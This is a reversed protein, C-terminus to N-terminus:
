NVVQIVSAASSDSAFGYHQDVGLVDASVFSAAVSPTVTLRVFSFGNNIDLEAMKCNIVSQQSPANMTAMVTTTVDKLGTGNADQAQQFKADVLGGNGIAGVKVTAMLKHFLAASIWGTSQAANSSQPDITAALAVRQSPKLSPWM